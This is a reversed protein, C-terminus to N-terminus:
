KPPNTFYADLIAEYVEVLKEIEAVPV